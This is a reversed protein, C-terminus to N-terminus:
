AHDGKEDKTEHQEGHGHDNVLSEEQNRIRTLYRVAPGANWEELLTYARDNKFQEAVKSQPDNLDGFIIAGTPCSAQCATVVDGDRLSRYNDHRAVNKAEKIRQVCFTCKEMVGRTRVTVSPNLQNKRSEPITKAYNFWNFRRVKYPCNNACYRTGVCRNYIMSNLGEDDHVTAVVPCVSECPANECHQCMVPQVVATPNSPDGKYYRDLRIWHMERGELLYKKGVVPINNESQCATVCLSCGTCTNLDVAMSWKNKTYKHPEWLSWMKHRHIGAEKNKQWDKRSAELAIPRDEMSHHDQTSALKMKRGAKVITPTLGALVPRGERWDALVTADTGVGKAVAGARARGYGLALGVVQDHVGPQIHVPAEVEGVATKVKVVDGEKLARAKAFGYSVVLYNDWAIKTVPDPLEQLWAVNAFDGALMQPKYYLTLELDASSAPQPLIRLAASENLSRPAHERAREEPSKIDIYGDKLAKTWFAAFDRQGSKPFINEQWYAKVYDFFSEPDRLRAPGVEQFYAWGILSFEFSRTQFMEAITPQQLSFISGQVVSDGWAELKHHTPLIFHALAGMEDIRDGTYIVQKVKRVAEVFGSNKPLTAAPNVEHVILTDVKGANMDSILLQLETDPLASSALLANQSDITKGDNGLLSNLINVAIHVSLENAHRVASGGTVILSRGRKEFLEAALKQIVTKEFAFSPQSKAFDSELKKLVTSPVSLGKSKMLGVVSSMLAMVVDLQQTPKIQYRYDSNLGTLSYLGEFVVLRSMTEPDRRAHMFEKAQVSSAGWAGLFDTDISVILEAKDFRLKPVVAKGYCAQSAMLASSQSIPDWVVHQGKFGQLFDGIIRETSPSQLTSTLIVTRGKAMATVIGEDIDDWKVQAVEYNTGAKNRILKVPGKLREPDYLTSIHAQAAFDVTGGTVSGSGPFLPNAEIHLPRGERTRVVIPSVNGLYSFTSAYKNAIGLTIEEPRTNYPVLKQVPRRICGASALAMSAGMIRLFNRRDVGSAEDTEGERLPSSTFEHSSREVFSPDQHLQELSLWYPNAQGDEQLKPNQSKTDEM